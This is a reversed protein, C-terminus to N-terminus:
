KIHKLIIPEIIDSVECFLDQAEETFGESGDERDEWVMHAGMRHEVIAESIDAILHKLNEPKM